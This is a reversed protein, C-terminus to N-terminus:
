DHSLYGGFMWGETDNVSVYYWGETIDDITETAVTKSIIYVVEQDDVRGIAATNRNPEERLNLASGDGTDVYGWMNIPLTTSYDIMDIDFFKNYYTCALSHITPSCTMDKAIAIYNKQLESETATRATNIYQMVEIDQKSNSIKSTQVWRTRVKASTTDYFNVETLSIGSATVKKGTVVLDGIELYANRFAYIEPNTFLTANSIIVSTGSGEAVESARVYYEKGKYDVKYFDINPTTGSSTYLDKTVVRDSIVNLVTGAPITSSYTVTKSDKEVRLVGNDRLMVVKDFAFVSAACILLAAAAIFKKM